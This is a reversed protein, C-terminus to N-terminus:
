TERLRRCSESLGERAASFWAQPRFALEWQTMLPMHHPSSFVFIEKFIWPFFPSLYQDTQGRIHYKLRPVSLALAGRDM